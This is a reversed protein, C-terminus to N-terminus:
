LEKSYWNTKIILFTNVIVVLAMLSVLEFYKVLWLRFGMNTIDLKGWIQFLYFFLSVALVLLYISISLVIKKEGVTQKVVKPMNRNKYKRIIQVTFFVILVLAFVYWMLKERFDEYLWLYKNDKEINLKEILMFM